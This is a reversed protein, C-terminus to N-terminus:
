SRHNGPSHRPEHINTMGNDRIAEEPTRKQRVCRALSQIRTAGDRREGIQFNRAEGRRDDLLWWSMSDEGGRKESYCIVATIRGKRQCLKWYDTGAVLQDASDVGLPAGIKANGGVLIQYVKSKYKEMDAKRWLHVAREIMLNSEDTIELLEELSIAIPQIDHDESPLSTEM